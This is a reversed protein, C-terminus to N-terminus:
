LLLHLYLFTYSTDSIGCCTGVSKIDEITLKKKKISESLGNM